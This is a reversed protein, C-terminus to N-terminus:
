ALSGTTRDERTTNVSASDLVRVIARAVRERDPLYVFDITVDTTRRRKKPQEIM